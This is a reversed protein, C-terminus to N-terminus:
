TLLNHYHMKDVTHYVEAYDRIKDVILSSDSLLNQGETGFCQPLQFDVISDEQGRQKLNVALKNEACYISQNAIFSASFVKTFM